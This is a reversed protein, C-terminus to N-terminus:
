QGEGKHDSSEQMHMHPDELTYELQSELGEVKDLLRALRQELVEIDSRAPLRFAHLLEEMAANIAIRQRFGQRMLAGSLRLYTPSMALGEFAKSAKKEWWLFAKGSTSRPGTLYGIYKLTRALPTRRPSPDAPQQRTM